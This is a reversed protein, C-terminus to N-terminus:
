NGCLDTFNDKIIVLILFLNVFEHPFQSKCFSKISVKHSILTPSFRYQDWFETRDIKEETELALYKEPLLLESRGWDFVNM